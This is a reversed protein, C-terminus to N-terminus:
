LHEEWEELHITMAGGPSGEVKNVKFYTRAAFLVEKEGHHHSLQQISAGRKGIATIKFTTNGGFGKGTSSSMFAEEQTIKGEAYKAQDASSLTTGRTVTGKHKPMAMLAKNVMAVYTHQAPSWAGSRLAKNVEHYGGNSYNKILAAQFGSIPYGLSAAESQYGKFKEVLDAQKGGIMQALANFGEAQQESIGLQEMVAKNKKASEAAQAKAQAALKAANAKAQEAAKAAAAAAQQATESMLPAMAAKLDKFDDVKQQLLEANLNGKNAWKANFGDVLAQAKPNGAPAGPVYQVQLPVNKAAKQLEAATAKGHKAKAPKAAKAPPASLPPAKKGAMSELTPAGGDPTWGLGKAKAYAKEADKMAANMAAGELQAGQAEKIIKAGANAWAGGLHGKLQSVVLDSAGYHKANEVLNKLLNRYHTGSKPPQDMYFKATTAWDEAPTNGAVHKYLGGFASPKGAAPPAIPSPAAKGTSGGGSGESFKGDPERPHKSEQWEDTAMGLGFRDALDKKRAILTDALEEDDGVAKRIAADPISTVRKASAKMEADSMKGFLKAADHSKAPDRMSDIEAVKNGFAKGKPAGQARYRLSGGVDLTTVKGNLVGQNDGGTGAADYNSLWAHVAFDKTAEKREAASLKSVNNKDLKELETAVHNGGEVERYTLTNVGALQYLRAAALENAVHAKSEPRKVYFRQGSKDEFTGGENSGMKSGVKTLDKPNLKPKAQEGGLSAAIERDRKRNLIEPLKELPALIVGEAEEGAASPDGGERV